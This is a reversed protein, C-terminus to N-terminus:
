LDDRTQSMSRSQTDSHELWLDIGSRIPGYVQLLYDSEVTRCIEHICISYTTTYETVM